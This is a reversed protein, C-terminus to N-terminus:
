SNPDDSGYCNIIIILEPEPKEKLEDAIRRRINEESEDPRALIVLFKDSNGRIHNDLKEIRRLLKNPM